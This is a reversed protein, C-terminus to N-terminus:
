EHTPLKLIKKLLFWKQRIKWFKSAEMVEIRQQASVLAKELEEIRELAVTLSDKEPPTYQPVALSKELSQRQIAQRESLSIERINLAKLSVYFECGTTPYFQEIEFDFLGLNILSNLIKLFSQPTFVWCHTDIYQDNEFGRRVTEWADIESYLFDFKANEIDLTSDWSIDGNCATCLTLCDFIQKPSPKKSKRLFADIIEAITSVQRYYDFCFRKDPIVLSLIGGPKLVAHIEKLWSILDPVHEIVHSAVLYDFLKGEGVLEPLSKKGWVYDVNVIKNIDVIPDNTYKIKLEETTLHDIYYVNGMERTIIPNTLAGIELGVQNSVDICSLIKELRNAM